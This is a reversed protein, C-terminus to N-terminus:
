IEEEINVRVSQRALDMIHDDAIRDLALGVFNQVEDRDAQDDIYLRLLATEERELNGADIGAVGTIIEEYPEGTRRVHARITEYVVDLFHAPGELTVTTEDM